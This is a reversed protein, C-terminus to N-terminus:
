SWRVLVSSLRAAVFNGFLLNSNSPNWPVTRAATRHCPNTQMSAYAYADTKPHLRGTSGEIVTSLCKDQSGAADSGHEAARHAEGQVASQVGGPRQVTLGSPTRM